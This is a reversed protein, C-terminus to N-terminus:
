QFQRGALAELEARAIQYDYRVTVLTAEANALNAQSTVRELITTAGARYRAEQVRLDERAAQVAGTALTIRKAALDLATLERAADVRVSRRLDRADADAAETATHARVLAEERQLGDFLPFSLGLRMSWVPTNGFFAGGPMDLWRYGGTLQLSPMYRARAVAIGAGVARANAQAARVTPAQQVIQELLEAPAVPLLTPELSAIPKAGV